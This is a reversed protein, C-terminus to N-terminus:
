ILLCSHGSGLTTLQVFHSHKTGAQWDLYSTKMSAKKPLWKLLFAEHTSVEYKTTRPALPTMIARRRSFNIPVVQLLYLYYYMVFYLYTYICIVFVFLFVSAIVHQSKLTDVQWTHHCAPFICLGAGSYSYNEWGSVCNLRIAFKEAIYHTIIQLCGFPFDIRM